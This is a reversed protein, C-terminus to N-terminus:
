SPYPFGQRTTEKPDCRRRAAFSSEGFLANEREREREREREGGEREERGKRM